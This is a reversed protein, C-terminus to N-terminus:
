DDFGVDKLNEQSKRIAKIFDNVPDSDESPEVSSYSNVFESMCYNVVQESKKQKFSTVVFDVNKKIEKAETRLREEECKRGCRVARLWDNAIVAYDTSFVHTKDELEFRFAFNSKLDIGDTEVADAWIVDTCNIKAFYDSRDDDSECKYLYITNPEMWPPLNEIRLPDTDYM